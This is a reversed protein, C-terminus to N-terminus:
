SQVGALVERLRVQAFAFTGEELITLTQGDLEYSLIRENRQERALCKGERDFVQILGHEPDVLWFTDGQRLVPLSLLREHALERNLKGNLYSKGKAGMLHYFPREIWRTLLDSARDRLAKKQPQLEKNRFIKPLWERIAEAYETLIKGNFASRERETDSHGPFSKGHSMGNNAGTEEETDSHGLTRWRGSAIDLVHKRGSSILILSKGDGSAYFPTSVSDRQYIPDTLWVQTRKKEDLDYVKVISEGAYYYYCAIWREKRSFAAYLPSRSQHTDFAHQIPYDGKRAFSFFETFIISASDAALLRDMITRDRSEALLSKEMWRWRSSVLAVRGNTLDLLLDEGSESWYIRNIMLYEYEAVVLRREMDYIQLLCGDTLIAMLHGYVTIYLNKRADLPLYVEKQRSDVPDVYCIKGDRLQADTFICGKEEWGGAERFSQGDADLLHTMDPCEERFTERLMGKAFRYHIRFYASRCLLEAGRWYLSGMNTGIKAAADLAVHTNMDYLRIVGESVAALIKGSSLAFSNGPVEMTVLAGAPAESEFYCTKQVAALEEDGALSAEVAAQLYADPFTQFLRAKEWLLRLTRSLRPLNDPSLRIFEAIQTVVERYLGHRICGDVYFPESLLQQMQQEDRLFENLHYSERIKRLNASVQADESVTNWPLSSFYARMRKALEPMKGDMMKFIQGAFHQHRFRLLLSGDQYLESLNEQIEYFLRAWLVPPIATFKWEKKSTKRTESRVEEIVEEDRTLLSLMEAESLGDASLALYALAHRHLIPYGGSGLSDLWARVMAEQSAFTERPLRSLTSGRDTSKWKRCFDSLIEIYLPTCDEPILESLLSTQERTLRRKKQRLRSTLMSMTGEKQMGPVAFVPIRSLGADAGLDSHDICSIVLTFEGPLKESFLDFPLRHWDSVTDVADLILIIPKRKEGADEETGSDLSARRNMAEAAFGAAGRSARRRIVRAARNLHELLWDECEMYSPTPEVYDLLGKRELTKLCFSFGDLVGRRTPQADPFFGVAREQNECIWHKLFYSKGTGSQGTVLVASGRNKECFATFAADLGPRDIYSRNVEHLAEELAEQEEQWADVRGSKRIEKQIVDTLFAKVKALYDTKGESYECIQRGERGRLVEKLHAQLRRASATDEASQVTQYGNKLMVFTHEKAEESEFLGRYIEQETASLGYKRLASEESLRAAALSFLCDRIESEKKGWLTEELYDGERAKLFYRESLDNEDQVYWEELLAAQEGSIGRTLLLWEEKPIDSPLPRWGYRSGAMVLFNPRPSLRQCREIEDFCIQVTQNDLAAQRSVGWRLDIVQFSFANTRCLADLEPFVETELLNRETEFEEFTSSIFIRIMRKRM